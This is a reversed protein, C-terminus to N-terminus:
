VLTLVSTLNGAPIVQFPNKTKGNLVGSAAEWHFCHGEREWRTMMKVKRWDENWEVAFILLLSLSIFTSTERPNEWQERGM